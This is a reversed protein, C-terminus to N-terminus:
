LEKYFSSYEGLYTFNKQNAIQKINAYKTNCILSRMGVVLATSILTSAIDGLANMRETKSAWPNSCFFDLIGINADTSILFGAAIGEEILGTKPLFEMPLPKVERRSMWDCITEYDRLQFNRM